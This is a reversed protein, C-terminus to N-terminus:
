GSRRATTATLTTSSASTCSPATTPRDARGGLMVFQDPAIAFCSVEARSMEPVLSWGLATPFATAREVSEVPCTITLSM